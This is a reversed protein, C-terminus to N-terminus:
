FGFGFDHVKLLIIYFEFVRDEFRSEITKGIISFLTNLNEEFRAIFFKLSNISELMELIYIFKEFNM